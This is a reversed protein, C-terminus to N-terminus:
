TNFSVKVTYEMKGDNNLKKDVYHFIITPNYKKIIDVYEIPVEGLIEDNVIAKYHTGDKYPEFYLYEFEVSNMLKKAESSNVDELYFEVLEKPKEESEMRKKLHREKEKKNEYGLMIGAILIFIFILLLGFPM